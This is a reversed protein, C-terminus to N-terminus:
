NKIVKKIISKGDKWVKALYIGSTMGKLQITNQNHVIKILKGSFDFLEIKDWIENNSSEFSIQNNTPNPFVNIEDDLFQNTLSTIPACFLTDMCGDKNMKVIIGYDKNDSYYGAAIFNGSQLEVASNLYQVTGLVSDPFIADTREWISDGTETFKITWAAIHGDVDVSVTSDIKSGVGLWGGSSVPILDDLFNNSTSGIEGLNKEEVINFNSDRIMLKPQVILTGDFLYEGRATAYIWNGDDDFNLGRLSLEELSHDSEWYWKQNGLSDIAFIQISTQTQQWPVGQGSWTSGGIIFENDNKMIFDGIFDERNNDVGYLQEWLQEGEYNIKKIFINSSFDLAQKRGSILFGNEVELIKIYYDQLSNIDSYEKVWLQEGNNNLKMAIGNNRNFVHGLLLYGSNDNIKIMGKSTEGYSYSSGLSDMHFTHHIVQGNTDLKTFTIGQKYPFTDMVSIGNVVITDEDHLLINNFFTARYDLDYEQIFGIQGKVSNSFILFFTLIIIRLLM